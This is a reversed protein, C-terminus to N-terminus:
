CDFLTPDYFEEYYYTQIKQEAIREFMNMATRFMGISQKELSPDIIIKQNNFVISENKLIQRLSFFIKEYHKWSELRESYLGRYYFTNQLQHLKLNVRNIANNYIYVKLRKTDNGCDYRKHNLTYYLHNNLSLKSMAKILCKKLKQVLFIFNAKKIEKDENNKYNFYRYKKPSISIAIKIKNGQKDVVFDGKKCIRVAKPDTIKCTRGTESNIYMDRKYKKYEYHTKKFVQREFIIIDVYEGKGIKIFRYLYMLDKMKPHIQLMFKKVIDHKTTKSLNKILMVRLSAAYIIKQSGSTRKSEYNLLLEAKKKFNTMNSYVGDMELFEEIEKRSHVSQYDIFQGFYDNM